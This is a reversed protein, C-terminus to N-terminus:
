SAARRAESLRELISQATDSALWTAVATEPTIRSDRKAHITHKMVSALRRAVMHANRLDTEPLAVVISGDDQVAGFDMRRMLRSVILAADRQARHHGTGLCFRAVSLGGGNSQMQAVAGALLWLGTALVLKRSSSGM